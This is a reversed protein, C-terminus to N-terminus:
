LEVPVEVVEQSAVLGDGCLLAMQDPGTVCHIVAVGGRVGVTLVPFDKAASRVELYGQGIGLFQDFLRLLEDEGIPREVADFRGSEVRTAAVVVDSGM